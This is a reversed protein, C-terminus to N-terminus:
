LITVQVAFCLVDIAPMFVLSSIDSCVIACPTARPCVLLKAASDVRM